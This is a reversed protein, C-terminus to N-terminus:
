AQIKKCWATRWNGFSDRTVHCEWDYSQAIKQISEHQTQDIELVLQFPLDHNFALFQSSQAIIQRLVSLGDQDALLAGHDEWRTVSSSMGKLAQRPIYPPNSVILDFSQHDKLASFLDSQFFQINEINNLAANKRALDLAAPNIDIATIQAQPFKHALGLAIVGSGTGVDLIRHIQASKPTLEQILKDLWEETEPRPILIPRQVEIHLNLFPVWGIVYALPKHQLAIQDIYENLSELQTQTLEKQDYLQISSPQLVHKLLWWAEQRSLNTRQQIDAIYRNIM